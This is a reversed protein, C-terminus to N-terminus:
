KMFIKIYWEDGGMAGTYSFVLSKKNKRWNFPELRRDKYGRCNEYFYNAVPMDEIGVKEIFDIVNSAYLESHIIVGIDDNGIKALKQIQMAEDMNTECKFGEFKITKM